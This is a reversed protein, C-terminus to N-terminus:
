YSLLLCCVQHKDSLIDEAAIEIASLQKIPLEESENMRM